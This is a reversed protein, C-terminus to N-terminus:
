IMDKSMHITHIRSQLSSLELIPPSRSLVTILKILLWSWIHENFVTSCRTACQVSEKLLWVLPFCSRWTCIPLCFSWLLVDEIKFNIIPSKDGTPQYLSYCNAYPWRWELSILFSVCFEIMKNVHCIGRTRAFIDVVMVLTIPWDIMVVHFFRMHLGTGM